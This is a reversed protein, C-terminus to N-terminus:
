NAGFIELMPGLHKEYNKWQALSNANIASRVQQKSFTRVTTEKEHFKLCDDSWGLGVFEILRRTVLEPDQVLEEYSLDFIKGPLVRKWHEILRSYQKYYQAYDVQDFSYGHYENMNNKYASIFNDMPNRFCHVIKANPFCLSIFGLRLFNHPMKDVVRRKEPCLFNILSLYDESIANWKKVSVSELSLAPRQNDKENMISLFLKGIRALEGAGGAEPHAAIIQETLTTGSRPMGVVFVPQESPNGVSGNRSIAEASFIEILRDFLRTTAAVSDKWNREIKSDAFCRFAEDYRSSNEYIRGLELFVRVKADAGLSESNRLSQLQDFASSDITHKRLGAIRVSAMAHSVPNDLLVSAVKEAEDFRGLASLADFYDFRIQVESEKDAAALAKEFYEISREAKGSQYFFAALAWPAEFPSPKRAMARELVPLAKEIIELNLYLRGLNVLYATSKPESKAAAEAFALAPGFKRQDVLTLSLADNVDARNPFQKYLEQAKTEAEVLRGAKSLASILEINKKVVPGAQFAGYSKTKAM